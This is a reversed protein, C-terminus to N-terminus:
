FQNGSKQVVRWSSSNRCRNATSPGSTARTSSTSSGASSRRRLPVWRRRRLALVGCVSATWVISNSWRQVCLLIYWTFFFFWELTVLIFCATSTGASLVTELLHFPFFLLYHLELHLTRRKFLIFYNVYKKTM